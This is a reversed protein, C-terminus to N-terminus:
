RSELLRQLRLVRIIVNTIREYTKSQFKISQHSLMKPCNVEVKYKCITPISYNHVSINHRELDQQGRNM